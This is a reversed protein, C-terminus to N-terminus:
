SPHHPAHASGQDMPMPMTMGDHHHGGPTPPPVVPKFKLPTGTPSPHRRMGEILRHREDAEARDRAPDFM